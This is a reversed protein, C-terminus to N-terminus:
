IEVVNLNLLLLLSQPLPFDRKALEGGTEGYVFYERGDLIYMEFIYNSM